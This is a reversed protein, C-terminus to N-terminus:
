LHNEAGPQTSGRVGSICLAREVAMHRDTKFYQRSVQSCTQIPEMGRQATLLHDHLSAIEFHGVSTFSLVFTRNRHM